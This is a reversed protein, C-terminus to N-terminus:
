QEKRIRELQKQAELGLETEPYRKVCENLIDAAGETDNLEIERISAARLYNERFPAYDPYRDALKLLEDAAEAWREEEVLVRVQYKEALIRAGRSYSDGALRQYHERARQYANEAAKAEGIEEFHAAIKLPAELGQPTLPFEKAISNYHLSAELWNGRKEEIRALMWKAEVAQDKNGPYEELLKRYIGTASDERGARFEIGARALLAGPAERSDPYDEEIERLLRSAGAPNNFGNLEMQAELYLLSPSEKKGGYREKLEELLKRAENWKESQIMTALLNFETEKVMVSDEEGSLIRGYLQEARRYWKRASAEDGSLSLLTGIKLPSILYRRNLGSPSSPVKRDIFGSYLQSYFDIASESDGLQESIVASSYLANAKAAPIGEAMRSAKRFDERAGQLMGARFQLQALEMQAAVVVTDLNGSKGMHPQYEAVVSRYAQITKSLFESQMTAGTLESSMKRARFLDKEAEYALNDEKNACSAATLASILLPLLILARIYIKM